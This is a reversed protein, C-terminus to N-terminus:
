DVIKRDPNMPHDHTYLQDQPLLRMNESVLYEIIEIQKVKLDRIQEATLKPYTVEILPKANSSLSKEKQKNNNNSSKNKSQSRNKTKNSPKNNLDKNNTTSENIKSENTKITINPQPISDTNNIM